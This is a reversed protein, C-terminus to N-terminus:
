VFAQKFEIEYVYPNYSSNGSVGLLRYYRYGTVNGSLSTQVQTASGGLTFSTGINVLSGGANGAQWKWSGHSTADSQRFTAETILVSNGVGFDFQIYQGVVSAVSFVTAGGATLNGDILRTGPYSAGNYLIAGSFTLAISGTRNGTVYAPVYAPVVARKAGFGILHTLAFSM